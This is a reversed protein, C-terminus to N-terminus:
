AFREKLRTLQRAVSGDIITTETKIKVGGILETDITNTATVEKGFAKTIRDIADESLPRASTIEIEKAGRARKVYGEYKELIDDVQRLKNERRLLDAFRSLAQDLEKGSLDKTAEFLAAALNNNSIKKM